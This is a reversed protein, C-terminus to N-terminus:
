KKWVYIAVGNCCVATAGQFVGTIYETVPTLLIVMSKTCLYTLKDDGFFNNYFLM